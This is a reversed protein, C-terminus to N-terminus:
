NSRFICNIDLRKERHPKMDVLSLNTGSITGRSNKHLRVHKFHNGKVIWLVSYQIPPAPIEEGMRM